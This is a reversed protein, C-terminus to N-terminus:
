TPPTPTTSRCPANISATWVGRRPNPQTASAYVYGNQEVSLVDPRRALAAAAQPSMRAAFGKIASKYTFQLQGHYSGVLRGSLQEVNTADDRFRVIYEGPIKTLGSAPYQQPRGARHDWPRPRTACAVALVAM